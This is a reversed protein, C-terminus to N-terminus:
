RKEVGTTIETPGTENREYELTQKKERRRGRRRM